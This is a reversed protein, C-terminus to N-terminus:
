LSSFDWSNLSWLALKVGSNFLPISLKRTYQEYIPRFPPGESVGHTLRAHWGFSSCARCFWVPCCGPGSLPFWCGSNSWFAPWLPRPTAWGARGQPHLICEPGLHGEEQPLVGWKDMRGGWVGVLGVSPPSTWGPCVSYNALLQLSNVSLLSFTSCLSCIM